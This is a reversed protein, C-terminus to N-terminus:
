RQRAQVDGVGGEELKSRTSLQHRICSAQGVQLLQKHRASASWEDLAARGIHTSTHPTLEHCTPPVQARVLVRRQCSTTQRVGFATQEHVHLRRNCLTHDAQPYLHCLHQSSATALRLQACASHAGSKTGCFHRCFHPAIACSPLLGNKRQLNHFQKSPQREFSEAAVIGQERRRDTAQRVCKQSHKVRMRGSFGFSSRPKYM